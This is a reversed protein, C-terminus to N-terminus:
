GGDGLRFGSVLDSSIRIVYDMEKAVWPRLMSQYRTLHRPDTVLRAIGTVVVSWGYHSDPDIADAEYGVVAGATGGAVAVVAAGLHSRIIVHGDDMVHNVPRIAPLANMTFMVRGFSATALLRLSEDRTLETLQREGSTLETLQREGSM